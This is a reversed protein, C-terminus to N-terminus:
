NSYYTVVKVCLLHFQFCQDGGIQLHALHIGIYNLDTNRNDTSNLIM